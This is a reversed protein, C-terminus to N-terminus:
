DIRYLEVSLNDIYFDLKSPNWVYFKILDNESKVPSLLVNYKWHRIKRPTNNPVENIRIASYSYSEGTENQFDISVYAESCAATDLEYSDLSIVAYLGREAMFHEDTETETLLNFENGSYDAMPSGDDEISNKVACSCDEEGEDMTCFSSFILTMKAEYPPLDNCGGLTNEYKEDTHLFIYKYKEYTMDWRSLIWSHYQYTQIVNIASFAALVLILPIFLKTKLSKSLLFGLPLAIVSLYEVFPRQSFSPGYYWNWWSALFYVIVAIFALFSFTLYPQRKIRILSALLGVLVVPTYLFLGKRWSLLFEFIAPHLFYFGEDTYTWLEITGSQIFVLLPHIAVIGISILASPILLSPKLVQRLSAMLSSSSGSLFPIAFVVLGNIPRILIILGLFASAIFLNRGRSTDKTFSKFFYLFGTVAFWSYVHSMAPEVLVYNMLNTGVSIVILTIGRSLKDIEFLQLLGDLWWLGIMLYFIAGIGIAIHFPNAYGEKLDDGAALYGIGMFPAMLVASGPYYKNVVGASNELFYRGDATQESFNKEIFIGTLYSYYGKGDSTIIRLQGDESPETWVFEIALFLFALGILPIVFHFSKPM